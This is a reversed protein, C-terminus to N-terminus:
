WEPDMVETVNGFHEEDELEFHGIEWKVYRKADTESNFPGVVNFEGDDYTVVVFKSDSGAYKVETIIGALEMLRRKDM